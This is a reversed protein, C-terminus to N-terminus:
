LVHINKAGEFDLYLVLIPLLSAVFGTVMDWDLYIQWVGTLFRLIRWLGSDPSLPCQDERFRIFRPLSGFNPDHNYGLGTVMNFDLDLHM